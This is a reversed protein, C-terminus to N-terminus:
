RVDSLYWNPAVLSCLQHLSTVLLSFTEHIAQHEGMAIQYLSYQTSVFVISACYYGIIDLRSYIQPQRWINPPSVDYDCWSSNNLVACACM